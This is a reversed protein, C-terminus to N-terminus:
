IIARVTLIPNWTEPHWNTISMCIKDNPIFRGSETLLMISPPKWPYEIPFELKGIYYGGIYQEDELGFILFYWKLM